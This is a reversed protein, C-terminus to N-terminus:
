VNCRNEWDFNIIAFNRDNAKIKGDGIAKNREETTRFFHWKMEGGNIARSEFDREIYDMVIREFRGVHSIYEINYQENNEKGVYRNKLFKDCYMIPRFMFYLESMLSGLLVSITRRDCLEEELSTGATEADIESFQGCKYIVDIDQLLIGLSKVIKPLKEYIEKEGFIKIRTKAEEKDGSSEFKKLSITDIDHAVDRLYIVADSAVFDRYLAVARSVSARHREQEAIEQQILFALIATAVTGIAAITQIRRHIRIM